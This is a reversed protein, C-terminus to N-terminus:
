KQPLFTNAEISVGRLEWAKTKPYYIMNLNAYTGIKVDNLTAPEPAANPTNSIKFYNTYSGTVFDPTQADSNDLVFKTNTGQAEIKVVRGFFDYVLIVSQVGIKDPSIPYNLSTSNLNTNQIIPLSKKDQSAQGYVYYGLLFLTLVALFIILFKTNM